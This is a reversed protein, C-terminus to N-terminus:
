KLTGFKLQRLLWTPSIQRLAVLFLGLYKPINQTGFDNIIRSRSQLQQRYNVSSINGGKVEIKVLSEPLVAGKFAHLIKWFYAYDEAHPYKEPYYGIAHLVERHFMVTPHIFSCKFHMERIIDKHETKTKYLYSRGSQKETFTCWSGLLVIKTHTEMYAVQKSFRESSCKDGCDLRAIYKFDTRGILQSLGANLAKAIGANKHLRLIRINMQPFMPQLFDENLPEKSGDDIVLVEFKAWAYHVSKLSNLLGEFDNYYPILLIFDYTTDM